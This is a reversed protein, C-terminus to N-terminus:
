NTFIRHGDYVISKINKEYCSEKCLKKIIATYQQVQDQSAYDRNSEFLVVSKKFGTDDKLRDSTVLINLIISIAIEHKNEKFRYRALLYLYDVYYRINEKTEYTGVREEELEGFEILIQDINFNHMIASELITILAPLLEDTDSSKIFNVYEVLVEEKGELLDLTYTNARAVVKYYDVESQGEENLENIWGMESYKEICDRSESLKGLKQLAIGKMLKSFGLYYIINRKFLYRNLQENMARQLQRSDYIGLAQTYLQDAIPIIQELADIAFAAKLMDTLSDLNVIDILDLDGM